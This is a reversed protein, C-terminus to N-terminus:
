NLAYNKNFAQDRFVEHAPMPKSYHYGQSIKCGLSLLYQATALDEVGEAVMELKMRKALDTITLVINRNKENVLVNKIFAQDIKLVDIPLESLYVLSSYGTGFDDVYIKHGQNRLFQLQKIVNDKDRLLMSETVEFQILVPDINYQHVITLAAEAFDILLLQQASVNIALPKAFGQATWFELDQCVQHLIQWSIEVILGTKEATDIFDDPYIMGKEKHQWRALVEYGVCESTEVDVKPQYYPLFHEGSIAKFIESELDLARNSAEGMKATYYSFSNGGREKASYMAADACSLLHQMTKGDEPYLAIGISLSVRFSKNKLEIPALLSTLINKAVDSPASTPPWSEAQVIIIFEDGGLRFIRNGEALNDYFRRSLQLLLQDGVVHGLSDNITKFRDLDMFLVSFPQTERTLESIHKKLQNINPLETLADYNAMYSLQKLYSHRQHLIYAVIAAAIAAYIAYAWWSLWPHPLVEIPIRLTKKSNLASKAQFEYSGSDLGSFIAFNKNTKIWFDGRGKLRYYVKDERTSKPRNDGFTFEIASDKYDLQIKDVQGHTIRNDQNARSISISDILLGKNLKLKEAINNDLIHIRGRGSFLVQGQINTNISKLNTENLIGEKIDFTEIDHTKTNLQYLRTSKNNSLWAQNKYFQAGVLFQSNLSKIIKSRYTNANIQVADGLFIWYNNDHFYLNGSLRQKNAGIIPHRDIKDTDRNYECIEFGNSWALREDKIISLYARSQFGGCDTNKYETVEFTQEDMRSLTTGSNIWLGDISSYKFALVQPKFLLRQEGTKPNLRLLDTGDLHWIHDSKDVKAFSASSPLPYVEKVQLDPTLAVAKDKNFLWIEGNSKTYSSEAKFNSLDEGEYKLISEKSPSYALRAERFVQRHLSVVLDSEDSLFLSNHDSLAESDKSLGLSYTKISTRGPSLRTLEKDNVVGWLAGQRDELMYRYRCKRKSACKLHSTNLLSYDSKFEYIGGQSSIILNGKATLLVENVTKNFFSALPQPIKEDLDEQEWDSYTLPNILRLGKTTALWVRDKSSAAVSRSIGPAPKHAGSTIHRFTNKTQNYLYVGHSKTSVWVRDFTDISIRTIYNKKITPYHELHYTRLNLRYLGDSSGVWLHSNSLKLSIISKNYLPAGTQSHIKTIAHGNYRGLGWSTALWYYGQRDKVTDYTAGPMPERLGSIGMDYFFYNPDGESELNPSAQLCGAYLLLTITIAVYDMAYYRWM